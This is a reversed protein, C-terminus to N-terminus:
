LKYTTKLLRNRYEEVPHGYLIGGGEVVKIEWQYIQSFAQPLDQKIQERVSFLQLGLEHAFTVGSLSL